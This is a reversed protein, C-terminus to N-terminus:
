SNLGFLTTKVHCTLENFFDSLVALICTILMFGLYFWRAFMAQRSMLVGRKMITVILLFVLYIIGSLIVTVVIGDSLKDYTTGEFDFIIYDYEGNISQIILSVGFGLSFNFLQGSFIGAIATKPNGNKAFHIITLYDVYLISYRRYFQGMCFCYTGFICSEHGNTDACALCFQSFRVGGCNIRM